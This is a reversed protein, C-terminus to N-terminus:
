KHAINYYADEVRYIYQALSFYGEYEIIDPTTDYHYHGGEHGHKNLTYFHTHELRLHLNKEPSPDDTIMCSLMLLNPGFEFYRLWNDVDKSGEVLKNDCFDPM